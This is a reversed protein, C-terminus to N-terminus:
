AFLQLQGARAARETITFKKVTSAARGFERAVELTGGGAAIRTRFAEIEESTLPKNPEKKNFYCKVLARHIAWAKDDTLSKVVMLYGTESLFIMPVRPGGKSQTFKVRDNTNSGVSKTSDFLQNYEEYPVEFFDEDKIFHKRNARFNRGATGASRGHFEDVQPLTVVPRKKYFLPAVKRDVIKILSGM